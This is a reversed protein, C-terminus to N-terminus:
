EKEFYSGGCAVCKMHREVWKNYEDKDLDVDFRATTGNWTITSTIDVIDHDSRQTDVSIAYQVNQASDSILPKERRFDDNISVRDKRFQTHWDFVIARSCEKGRSNDSFYKLTETPTMGSSACIKVVARQEFSVTLMRKQDGSCSAM